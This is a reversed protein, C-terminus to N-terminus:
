KSSPSSFLFYLMMAVEVVAFAIIFRKTSKDTVAEM